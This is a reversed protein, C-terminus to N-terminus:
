NCGSRMPSRPSSCSPIMTTTLDVFGIDGPVVAAARTLAEIALRSKGVGAAGTLTILRSEGGHLLEVLAAIESERGIFRTLAHPLSSTMM